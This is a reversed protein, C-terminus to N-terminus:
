PHITKAAEQAADAPATGDLLVRRAAKSLIPGAFASIEDDPFPLATESIGAAFSGQSGTKWSQLATRSPPLVKQAESWDGLFQPDLLWALLDAAVARRELDPTAIAWSWGTALSFVKGDPTPPYGVFYDDSQAAISYLTVSCEGFNEIAVFSNEFSDLQLSRPSLVGAEQMMRLWELEQALPQPDVLADAVSLLPAGGAAYYGFFLLLARSDGLPLFLPGTWSAIQEWSRPDSSPVLTDALVIADGAFPAGYHQDDVVVMSQAYPFYSDWAHAPLLEDVPYVLGKIAAARLTSQDLAVLDPLAGPAAAAAAALSDRLGGAGSAAKVRVSIKLGPHLTAYAELRQNLVIGSPSNNDSRFAPPVWLTLSSIDAAPTPLPTVTPSPTEMNAGSPPVTPAASPVPGCAATMLSVAALNIVQLSLRALVPKYFRMRRWPFFPFMFTRVIIDCADKLPFIRM